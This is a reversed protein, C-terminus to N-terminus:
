NINEKKHITTGINMYQKSEGILKSKTIKNNQYSKDTAKLFLLILNQVTENQNLLQQLCQYTDKNERNSCLNVFYFKGDLSLPIIKCLRRSKGM